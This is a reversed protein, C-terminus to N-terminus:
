LNGYDNAVQLAANSYGALYSVDLYDFRATSITGDKIGKLNYEAAFKLSKMEEKNGLAKKGEKYGAVTGKIREAHMKPDTGEPVRGMQSEAGKIRNDLDEKAAKIESSSGSSSSGGGGGGGTSFRGTSGDRYPNAKTVDLTYNHVTVGNSDNNVIIGM